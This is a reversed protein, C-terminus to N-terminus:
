HVVNVTFSVSDIPPVSPEWNLREVLTVTNQGANQTCFYFTEVTIGGVQNYNGSKPRYNTSDIRVINTDTLSVDWQYGGDANVDLQLSFRQNPPYSVSKGDISSDWQPETPSPSQSCGAITVFIIIVISRHINM